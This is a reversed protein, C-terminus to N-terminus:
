KENTPKLWLNTRKFCYHKLNRYESFLDITKVTDAKFCKHLEERIREESVVSFKKDYDFWKIKYHISRAITFDKTISFRVARLLRLPDDEFTIDESIPTRLVKKKIDEIGHFPDYITGDFGKAIANVTFDRRSLDDLLSGVTVIPTRTGEVYGLEKRALVFDAVVGAHKHDKAFKARITLAEPTVLFIEFGKSVLHQQLLEFAVNINQVVERYDEDLVVSYDIDKSVLGLFEDRVKGGVEYFTFM